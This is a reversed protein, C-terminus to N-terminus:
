EPPLEIPLTISFEIPTRHSYGALDWLDEDFRQMIAPFEESTGISLLPFEHNGKPLNAGGFGDQLSRAGHHMLPIGDGTVILQIACAFEAPAGFEKRVREIWALMLGLAGVLWGAFVVPREETPKIRFDLECTGTTQLSYFAVTDAGKCTSMISRLGPRWDTPKWPWACITPGAVLHAAATPSFDTLRPRGVLRGLDIPITPIALLQLGGGELGVKTAQTRLWEYFTHRFESRRKAITAEIRTAESVAHMTLEQVERMAVRVTEDNRRVFVEKSVQHRHPRRRSQPVRLLVVGTDAQFEVGAAELVPLPPDIIEYVSQRLRRALDHVHPLPHPSDARKPHDSTENIGLCVVGGVTNAFAIIEEAIQNRAYEGLQGGSHWPHLNGDRTPLDSKLEFETGESVQDACLRDIDAWTVAELPDRFILM